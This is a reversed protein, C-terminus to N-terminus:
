EDLAFAIRIVSTHSQTLTNNHVRQCYDSRKHPLSHCSGWVCCVFSNCLIARNTYFVSVVCVILCISRLYLSSVVFMLSLFLFLSLDLSFSPSLFISISHSHYCISSLFVFPAPLKIIIPSFPPLSPQFRCNRRLEDSFSRSLSHPLSLSLSFRM